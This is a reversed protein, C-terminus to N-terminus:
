IRGELLRDISVRCIDALRRLCRERTMGDPLVERVQRNYLAVLLANWTMDEPIIDTPEFTDEYWQKVEAMKSIKLRRLRKVQTTVLVIFSETLLFRTIGVSRRLM